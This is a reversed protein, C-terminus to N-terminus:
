CRMMEIWEFGRSSADRLGASPSRLWPAPAVSCDAVTGIQAATDYRRDLLNNIQAFFKPTPTPRYVLAPAIFNCSITAAAALWLDSRRRSPRARAEVTGSPVREAV